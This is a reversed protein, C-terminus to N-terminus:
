DLYDPPYLKQEYKDAIAILRKLEGADPVHPELFTGAEVPVGVEKFFEELGSPTVTCLMHAPKDGLNKFSHVAGGLPIYVLSGETAIYRGGEMKFEIEGEVIYFSEQMNPHAHPGPGGGPPVVMDIIAYSGGTQQGSILTRYTNGAISLSKGENHNVTLIKSQLDSM